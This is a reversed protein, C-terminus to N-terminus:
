ETADIQRLLVPYIAEAIKAQGSTEPHIKDRYDSTNLGSELGSIVPVGQLELFLELDVGMKNWNGSQVESLEAHHYVIMPIDNARSYAVFHDWGSNHKAELPVCGPLPELEDWVETVVFRSWFWSTLDSIALVPHSSPYFPVNGVVDSCIIQDQWDHSSFLLVICKADFDGHEKMWAYANDPGWSGASVNLVRMQPDLIQMKVELLSASLESQDTGMGGNLVSDGFKLIRIEGENLPESRMGDENIFFHRGFRNLDQNPQLAYDYQTSSYYLPLQGFGFMRLVLECLVLVLLLVVINRLFLHKM